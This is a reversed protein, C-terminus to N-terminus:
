KKCIFICRDSLQDFPHLQYDGVVEMINFGVQLLMRQLDFRDLLAVSEQFQYLNGHDNVQIHKIVKHDKIEKYTEFRIGEREIVNKGPNNLVQSTVKSANFFDLVFWGGTILAAYVANLIKLDESAEEFYGFSTFLNFVAHFPGGNYFDRMDHVKFQLGETASKSAYAISAPSLDLGHIDFGKQHLYQAHRGRGCANDLIKQGPKLDLQAVLADIFLKAEEEDRHAYLLHYYDTDFWTEYWSQM